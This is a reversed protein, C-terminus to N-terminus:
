FRERVLIEAAPRRPTPQPTEAPYGITLIAVPKLGSPAHLVRAVQIEDFAGIWCTGLGQSVAALQAYAAAITADQVCFLAAGRDGYKRASRKSDAFFVLVTPARALFDQGFAAAALASKTDAEEVQVVMYAQLNGASPALRIALLIADIREEDVTTSEYARISRRKGVQDAYGGNSVRPQQRGALKRGSM